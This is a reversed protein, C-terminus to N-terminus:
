VSRAGLIAVGQERQGGRAGEGEQGVFKAPQDALESALGPHDVSHEAGRVGDRGCGSEALREGAEGDEVDGEAGQRYPCHAAYRGSTWVQNAYRAHAHGSMLRGAIMAM